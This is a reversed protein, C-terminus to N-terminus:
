GLSLRLCLLLRFGLCLYLGLCRLWLLLSRRNLKMVKGQLRSAKRREERQFDTFDIVLSYNHRKVLPWVLFCGAYKGHTIQGGQLESIPGHYVFGTCHQECNPLDRPEISTGRRVKARTCHKSALSQFDKCLESFHTWCHKSDLFPGCIFGLRKLLGDGFQCAIEFGKSLKTGVFALERFLTISRSLQGQERQKIVHLCARETTCDRLLKILKIPAQLREISHLHTALIFRFHSIKGIIDNFQRLSSTSESALSSM